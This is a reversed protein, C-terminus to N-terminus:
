NKITKWEKDTLIVLRTGADTLMGKFDVTEESDQFGL